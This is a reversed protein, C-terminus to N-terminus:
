PCTTPREDGLVSDSLWNLANFRAVRSKFVETRRSKDPAPGKAPVRNDNEAKAITAVAPRFGRAARATWCQFTRIGVILWNIRLGRPSFGLRLLTGASWCHGWFRATQVR